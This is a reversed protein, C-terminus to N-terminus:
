EQKAETFYCPVIWALNLASWRWINEWDIPLHTFTHHHMSTSPATSIGTFQHKKDVSIVLRNWHLCAGQCNAVPWPQEGSISAQLYSSCMLSPLSISQKSFPLIYILSVPYICPLFIRGKRRPLDGIYHESVSLFFEPNGPNCHPKSYFSCSTYM